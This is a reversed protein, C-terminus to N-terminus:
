AVSCPKRVRDCDIADLPGALLRSPSLVFAFVSLVNVATRSGRRQATRTTDAIM